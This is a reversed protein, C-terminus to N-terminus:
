ALHQWSCNVCSAQGVRVWGAPMARALEHERIPNRVNPEEVPAVEVVQPAHDVAPAFAQETCHPHRWMSPLDYGVRKGKAAVPLPSSFGASNLPLWRSRKRSGWSTTSSFFCSSTSRRLSPAAAPEMTLKRRALRCPVSRM